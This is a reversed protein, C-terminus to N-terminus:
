WTGGLSAGTEHSSIAPAFYWSTAAPEKEGPAVLLWVIGGAVLAGGAVLLSTTVPGLVQGRASADLGQQSCTGKEEDCNDEMVGHDHIVFGGTVAGAVLAGIGVGGLVWPGILHASDPPEPEPADKTVVITIKRDKEGSQVVISKKQPPWGKATVELTHPGKTITKALGDLHDLWLVDDLSVTVDTVAAGAEDVVEVIITSALRAELDAKWRTCNSSLENGCARVCTDAEKVAEELKGEDRLVQTKYYADRCEQKQDALAAGTLLLSAAFAGVLPLRM